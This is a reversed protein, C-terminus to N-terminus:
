RRIQDTWLPRAPLVRVFQLADSLGRVPDGVRRWDALVQLSAAKMRDINAPDTVDLLCTGLALVDGPRFTRGNVGERVLEHSAGVVDTCILALGAAAAENVVLAWADRDSPLVLADCAKYVAFVDAPDAFFGTWIIRARLGAPVRMQLAARASGDGVLVLDWEPRQAAIALFADILVDTRKQPTIRGSYVIRRRAPSLNYNRRAEDVRTADLNEILSYDPEPPYCFMQERRAGYREFYQRGYEGCTLIGDCWSVVRRVLNSKIVRRAGVATDGRVNSDGWLFCPMGSRHCWNLIRMRGIDYYGEIVVARANERRIFDIIRSAKKWEHWHSTVRIADNQSEGRGFRTGSGEMILDIGWDTDGTDHTYAVLLRIQPLEHVIRRHVHLRYPAPVAAVLVVTACNAAPPHMLHRSIM